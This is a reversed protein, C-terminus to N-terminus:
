AQAPKLDDPRDLPQMQTDAFLSQRFEPLDTNREMTAWLYLMKATMPRAFLFGQLEECGLHRLIQYQGDTEVGEAVVKLNLAQGVKVVAEVVSCAEQSSELDIVFSRDIKLEETPLQRLYSLSSYGTGFDDISIHVGVAALRNLLAKTSETDEMAVSETIECTLLRPNVSQSSLAEAIRECIDPQRMQHVSLNIAVRMRLGGDRWERIQRCAETIVWNGISGILGFREAIPIFIAPSILGNVPHNWRLLAEAGTILGSPAHVKPQFYLELQGQDLATRLDRLVEMQERIDQLMRAEYFCYTDGGTLKAARAAADAHTILASHAGDEPYTAIGISASVPLSKDEIDFPQKLRDLLSRANQAVAERSAPEPLLVVFEDAAWRAMVARDGWHARLRQAVEALLFDGIRHGFSENIPKFGDLDVFLLALPKQNESASVTAQILHAEMFARNHLQTLPDKQNQEFLTGKVEQLSQRMRTEVASVILLMLLLILTGVNALLSLAQVSLEGTHSVGTQLGVGSALLMQHMAWWVALALVISAVVRRVWPFSGSEARAQVVAQSATIAAWLVLFIVGLQTGNWVLGPQYGSSFLAVGKGLLLAVALVASGMLWRIPHSSLAYLLWWGVVSVSVGVLWSALLLGPQFGPEFGLPLRNVTLIHLSWSATALALSAALAWGLSQPWGRERIRAGCDLAVFASLLALLLPLWGTSEGSLSLMGTFSM